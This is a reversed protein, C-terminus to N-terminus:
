LKHKLSLFLSINKISVEGYIITGAAGVLETGVQFSNQKLTTPTQPIFRGPHYQTLPTPVLFLSIVTSVEGNVMTRAVGLLVLQKRSRFPILGSLVAFSLGVSM